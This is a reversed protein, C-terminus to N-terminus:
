KRLDEQQSDHTLQRWFISVSESIWDITAHARAESSLAEDPVLGTTTQLIHQSESLPRQNVHGDGAVSPPAWSVVLARRTHHGLNRVEDLRAHAVKGKSLEEVNEIADYAGM